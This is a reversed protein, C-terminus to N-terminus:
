GVSVEAVADSAETVDGEDDDDNEDDEYDNGDYCNVYSVLAKCVACHWTHLVRPSSQGNYNERLRMGHEGVQTLDHCAVNRGMRSAAVPRMLVVRAGTNALPKGRPRTVAHSCDACAVYSVRCRLCHLECDKGYTISEGEVFDFTPDGKLTQIASDRAPWNNATTADLEYYWCEDDEVFEAASVLPGACRECGLDVLRPVVLQAVIHGPLSSLLAQALRLVYDYLVFRGSADRAIGVNEAM